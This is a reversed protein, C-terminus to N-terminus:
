RRAGEEDVFSVNKERIKKIMVGKEYFISASARCNAAVRSM